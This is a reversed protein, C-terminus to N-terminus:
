TYSGFILAVPKTRSETLLAFEGTGAAYPLTFNPAMEGAAPPETERVDMTRQWGGMEKGRLHGDGNFDQDRFTMALDEQDFDGDGDQDFSLLFLPWDNAWGGLVSVVEEKVVQGDGDADFRASFDRWEETSVSEDGDGDAASLIMHSFGNFYTDEPFDAADLVGDENRDYNAFRVEGRSYELLTVKGDSNHDHRQSLTAWLSSLEVRSSCEWTSAPATEASAEQTLQPTGTACSGGLIPLVILCLRSDM